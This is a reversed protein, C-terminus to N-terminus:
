KLLLFHFSYEFTKTLKSRPFTESSKRYYQKGTGAQRGKVQKKLDKGRKEGGRKEEQTKKQKSWVFM